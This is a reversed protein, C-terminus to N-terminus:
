NAVLRFGKVMGVAACDNPYNIVRYSCTLINCWLMSEPLLLLWAFHMGLVLVFYFAGGCVVINGELLLLLM